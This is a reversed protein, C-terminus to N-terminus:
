EYDFKTDEVDEKKLKWGDLVYVKDKNTTFHKKLHFNENIMDCFRSYNFNRKDAKTLNNYYDSYKYQSYVDKIKVDKEDEQEYLNTFWGYLDDGSAMVVNQIQKCKDPREPFGNKYWEIFYDKVIDFFIIRYEDNFRPEALQSDRIFKNTKDEANNYDEKTLFLSEYPTARLRRNVAEDIKDFNPIKNCGMKFTLALEIKCDNSHNLRANITSGGSLEKICASKMRKDASPEECYVFRKYKLNAIQPNAGDKIETFLISSPLKYGYGGATALMLENIFSKGNGGVGTDVFFNQIPIGCLGTAFILMAWKKIIPDPYIEDLIKNLKDKKNHPCVVWNYGCTQNIYDKSNPKIFEGNRLDFIKNNFAFIYPNKNWIIGTNNIKSVIDKIIGLRKNSTRCSFSISSRLSVIEAIEKEVEKILDKNQKKNVLLKQLDEELPKIKNTLYKVIQKNFIKDVFNSLNNKEKDDTCWVVGDFYYVQSNHNIWDNGNMMYFFDALKGTEAGLDYDIHKDIIKNYGQDFDKTAFKLDFDFKQKVLASLEDLLCEKYNEKMIMLGDACLSGVNDKIYGKDVLYIYCCELIRVEWEQLYFSTTSAQINKPYYPKEIQKELALTDWNKKKEADQLKVINVIESNSKTIMKQIVKFENIFLELECTPEFSKDLKSDDRWKSFGGGYMLRIFLNKATDRKKKKDVITHLYKETVFDLWKQRNICYDNLNDCPIDNARCIQLLIQPHANELDIDIYLEETLTHRIEKRISHLGLSGAPDCRGFPNNPSKNYTVVAYGAPNIIDRYKELMVKENTFFSLPNKVTLKLLDSNILKELLPKNIPEYMVIGNLLNEYPKLTLEFPM